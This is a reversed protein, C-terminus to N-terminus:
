RLLAWYEPEQMSGRETISVEFRKADPQSPPADSDARAGVFTGSVLLTDGKRKAALTELLPGNPSATLHITVLGSCLPRVSFTVRSDKPSEVKLLQVGWKEFEFNSEQALKLIEANRDRAISTMADEARRELIGNKDDRAKKAERMLGAYKESAASTIECFRREQLPLQQNEEPLSARRADTLSGNDTQSAVFLGGTLLLLSPSSFFGIVALALGVISMGTGANSRYVLGRVLGFLSSFVALPVFILGLTFIGLIGFCSGLVGLILGQSGRSRPSASTRPRESPAGEFTSLPNKVGPSRVGCESCFSANRTVAAGCSRCQLSAL